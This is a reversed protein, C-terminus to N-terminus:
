AGKTEPDKYEAQQSAAVSDHSVPVNLYFFTM